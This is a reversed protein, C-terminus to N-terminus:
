AAAPRDADSAAKRAPPDRQGGDHGQGADAEHPDDEADPPTTAKAAAAAQADIWPQVEDEPFVRTNPGLLFGPPFGRNKILRGLQTRNNVVGGEVLDKFRLLKKM